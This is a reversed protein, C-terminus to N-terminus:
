FLLPILMKTREMYRQYAGGFFIINEAEEMKATIILFVTAIVSLSVSALSPQKFFIGWTGFLGASYIPHRIYRYAGDTVLVSTREISKLLPDDRMGSSKLGKRLSLYGYIVLYLSAALLLWSIKQYISLPNSLWYNINLLILILIAEWALLRHFGHSRFNRLSPWSVWIFGASALIFIIVKLQFHAV